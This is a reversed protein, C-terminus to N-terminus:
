MEIRQYNIAAYGSGWPDGREFVGLYADEALRLYNDSNLPISWEAALFDYMVSDIAVRDTAFFLSNPTKNGFTRLKLPLSAWFDGAFLGDGITVITKNGINPNRNLDVLSNYSLPASGPFFTDHLGAPNNTSGLHHKFGLTVGAGGIHAKFLPMNILYTASVLVDSLKATPRPIGPPPSFAINASPDTSDFRARIHSGADYFRVGPYLSWGANVFRDPMPRSADYVWIDTERVGIQKLGRVAANVPQISADLVGNGSNNFNVKIAIGQGAQYDPLLKRWADAIASSNTLMMLGSDVMNDVVSQDVYNWYDSEDNWTTASLSHIHVVTPRPLPPRFGVNRGILPLFYSQPNDTPTEAQVPPISHLRHLGVLSASGLMTAVLRLLQRRTFRIEHNM